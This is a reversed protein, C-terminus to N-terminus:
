RPRLSALATKAAQNDPDLALAKAYAATARARDGKNLYARGLAAQFGSVEPKLQVARQYALIARDAEGASLWSAGLGAFARADSPARQAAHEYAEAAERFKGAQFFQLGKNKYDTESRLRPKYSVVGGPEAAGGDRLFAKGAEAAPLTQATPQDAPVPPAGSAVAPPAAAPASPPVESAASGMGPAAEPEPPVAASPPEVAPTPEAPALAPETASGTPPEASAAPPQPAAREAHPAPVASSAARNAALKIGVALLGLLAAAALLPWPRRGRRPPLSDESPESPEEHAPEAVPTRPVSPRPGSTTADALEASDGIVERVDRSDQADQGERAPERRAASMIAPLPPESAHPPEAVRGPAPVSSAQASSVVPAPAPASSAQASSVVPAPASSAQASSVAPAPAPVSSAQASSAVVLTPDVANPDVPRTSARKARKSDPPPALSEIDKLDLEQTKTGVAPPRVSQIDSLDLEQTKTGVLPPRVSEIDNLELEQTKPSIPPLQEMELLDLEQTKIPTEIAGAPQLDEISLEETNDPQVSSRHRAVRSATARSTASPPPPAASPPPISASPLVSRSLTTEPMNAPLQSELARRIQRASFPRRRPEKALLTELLSRVAAPLDADLPKPELDRQAALVAALTPAAFPPAGSLMEYLMCGLSYLDSRFSAPKGAAIEPATYAATGYSEFLADGPLRAAVGADILRVQPPGVPRPTLLVHGPKVDRHVLGQRHLEDLASALQAVIAVAEPVPLPGRCRLEVALTEGEIFERLLWLRGGVEGDDMVTPLHSHLIARQKRLERRCRTREAIGAGVRESFFKLLVARDDRLAMGKFLQGTEGCAFPQINRVRAALEAPAPEFVVEVATSGDDPCVTEATSLLKRCYSCARMPGM